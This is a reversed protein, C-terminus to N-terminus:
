CRHPCPDYDMCDVNIGGSSMSLAALVGIVISLHAQFIISENPGREHVRDSYGHLSEGM